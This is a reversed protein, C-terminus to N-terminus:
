VPMVDKVSFRGPLLAKLNSIIKGVDRFDDPYVSFLKAGYKKYVQMKRKRREEYKRWGCMGWIEVYVDDVLFDAAYRNNFPLRPEYEHPIGQQTMANDMAREYHSKVLHGDTCKIKNYNKFGSPKADIGYRNLYDNIIKKDVGYIPAIQRTTLDQEVYLDRLEDEPIDVMSAKHKCENGCYVRQQAFYPKEEFAKGCQKCLLTVRKTQSADFCEKSCFVGKGSKVVSSKVTFPKGCHKCEKYVTRGIGIESCERSCYTTSKSETVFSKECIPCVKDIERGCKKTCYLHQINKPKFETGCRLCNNM